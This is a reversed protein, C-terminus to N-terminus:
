SSPAHIYIDDIYCLCWGPSREMHRWASRRDREPVPDDARKDSRRYHWQGYVDRQNGSERDHQCLFDRSASGYSRHMPVTVIGSRRITSRRIISAEMRDQIRGGTARGQRPRRRRRHHHHDKISPRNRTQGLGPTRPRLHLLHILSGSTAARHSHGSSTTPSLTLVSRRLAAAAQSKCTTQWSAELGM